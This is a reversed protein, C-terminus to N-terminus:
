VRLILTHTHTLTHESDQERLHVEATFSTHQRQLWWGLEEQWLDTYCVVALVTHHDVQVFGEYVAGELYNVVSGSVLVRACVSAFLCEYEKKM